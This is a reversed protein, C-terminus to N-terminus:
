LGPHPWLLPEAGPLDASYVYADMREGPLIDPPHHSYALSLFEALRPHLLPEGMIHFYLYETYAKLRQLIFAMEEASLDRPQRRTGPCFSCHLNCRNTIEVYARKFM